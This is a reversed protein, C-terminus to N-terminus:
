RPLACLGITAGTLVGHALRRGPQHHDIGIVTALSAGRGVYAGDSLAVVVARRGTGTLQATRGQAPGPCCASRPAPCSVTLSAVGLSTITSASSPRWRRAENTAAAPRPERR